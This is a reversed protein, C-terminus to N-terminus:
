HGDANRDMNGCRNRRAMATPEMEIRMSSLVWAQHHKQMDFYSMGGLASHKGAVAQLINLLHTPQIKSNVACQDITIETTAKYVSAFKDPLIM